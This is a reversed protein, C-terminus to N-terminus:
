PGPLTRAVRFGVTEDSQEPRLPIRISSHLEEAFEKYSGGRLERQGGRREDAGDVVVGDSDPQPSDLFWTECWDCANGLLDFFGWDNPKLLAVPSTSQASNELAWSYQLRVSGAVEGQPHASITGARCAFEWEASTPLRYGTKDLLEGPIVVPRSQMYAALLEDSSPYYQQEAPIGEREGLWYCFAAAEFWNVDVIPHDPQTSGRRNAPNRELTEMLLELTQALETDNAERAKELRLSLADLQEAEFRRFEAVTVPRTAM